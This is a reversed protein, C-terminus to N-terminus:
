YSWLLCLHHDQRLTGIKRNPRQMGSDGVRRRSFGEVGSFIRSVIIAM